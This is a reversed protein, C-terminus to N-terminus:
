VCTSSELLVHEIDSTTDEHVYVEDHIPTISEVLADM